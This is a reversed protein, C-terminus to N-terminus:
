APGDAVELFDRYSAGGVGYKWLTARTVQVRPVVEQALGSCSRFSGPRKTMGAGGVVERCPDDYDTPAAKQDVSEEVQRKLKLTV